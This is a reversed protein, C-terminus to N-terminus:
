SWWIMPAAHEARECVIANGNSRQRCWRWWCCGIVLWVVVMVVVVMLRFWKLGLAYIECATSMSSGNGTAGKQHRRTPPTYMGHMIYAAFAHGFPSNFGFVPM